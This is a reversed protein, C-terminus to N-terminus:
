GKKSTSRYVINKRWMYPLPFSFIHVLRTFPLVAFFLLGLLTHLQYTFPASTIVAVDPRFLILSRVYVGITLRYDYPGVLLTYGLTNLMGSVMIILLFILTFYDDVGSTAKVRKDMLRRALLIVLGLVAIVGAISGGYFSIIHYSSFSVGLSNYFSVPILIGMIHGIIIFMFAWHFMMSGWMLMRRELIQSSKSTWGWPDRDYRWILGVVFITMAVYPYIVWLLLQSEAVM